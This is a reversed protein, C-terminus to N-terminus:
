WAIAKMVDVGVAGVTDNRGECPDVDDPPRGFRFAAWFRALSL